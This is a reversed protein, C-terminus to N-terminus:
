AAASSRAGLSSPAICPRASTRAATPRRTPPPRCARGAPRWGRARRGARRRRRRPGGPGRARRTARGAGILDLREDGAEPRGRRAVGGRGLRQLAREADEFRHGTEIGQGVRGVSGRRASPSPRAPRPAAARRRGIGRQQGEGDLLRELRAIEVLRAPTGQDGGHAVARDALEVGRHVGAVLGERDQRGVRVDVQQEGLEVEVAAPASGGGVLEDQEPPEDCSVPSPAM